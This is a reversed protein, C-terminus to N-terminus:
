GHLSATLTYLRNGSLAYILWACENLTFYIFTCISIQLHLTINNFCIDFRLRYNSNIIPQLLIHNSTFLTCRFAFGPIHQLSGIVTVSMYVCVCCIIFISDRSLWQMSELSFHFICSTMIKKFLQQFSYPSYM